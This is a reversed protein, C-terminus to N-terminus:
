VHGKIPVSHYHGVVYRCFVCSLLLMCVTLWLHFADLSKDLPNNITCDTFAWARM